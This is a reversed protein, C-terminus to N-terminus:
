NIHIEKAKVSEAKPLSITLIGNNMEAELSATNVEQRFRISRTFDGSQLENILWREKESDERSKRSGSITLLNNEFKIKVEEKTVGPLEATVIFNNEQEVVDLAPFQTRVPLRDTIFFDNIQNECTRPYDFQVLM